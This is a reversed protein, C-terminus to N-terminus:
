EELVFGYMAYCTVLYIVDILVLMEIWTQWDAVPMNSLAATTAKVAALVVPLAMPLMVIPLLSDRARTQATMTALLTGVTTLGLTGLPMLVLLWLSLGSLNYLVVAMALLLVGVSISFLFNGVLKGLFISVRSISATLMAELGGQEREMALSRNLGLITAFAVTVWLVGSIAEQRAVRDLDLAFSFILLSLIAFVAMTSLMERSRFEAILDKRAILWSAKFFPTLM